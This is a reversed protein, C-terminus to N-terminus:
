KLIKYLIILLLVLLILYEMLVVGKREPTALRGRMDRSIYYIMDADISRDEDRGHTVIPFGTKRTKSNLRVASNIRIAGM